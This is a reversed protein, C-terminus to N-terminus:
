ITGVCVCVCVVLYCACGIKWMLDNARMEYTHLNENQVNQM